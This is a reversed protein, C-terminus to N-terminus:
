EKAKELLKLHTRAVAWMYPGLDYIAVAKKLHDKTLAKDGKQEYYLGLYLHAYFLRSKADNNGPAKSEADKLVEEPKVEDKFLKYITMMPVRRDFGVPAMSTKSKDFGDKRSICMARWVVNEVDSGDVRQYDDFQQRGKDYQGAYYYSIGRQWHHPEKDPMLKLFADFDEISEKIQANKFRAMGRQNFTDAKEEDSLKRSLAATFDAIAGPLQDARDRIRGRLYYGHASKNNSEILKTALAEAEKPKGAELARYIALEAGDNQPFLNWAFVCTLIILM